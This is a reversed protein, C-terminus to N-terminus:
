LVSSFSLWGTRSSSYRQSHADIDHRFTLTLTVNKTLAGGIEPLAKMPQLDVPPLQGDEWQDHKQCGGLKEDLARTNSYPGIM